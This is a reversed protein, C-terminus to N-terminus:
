LYLHFTIGVELEEEVLDFLTLCQHVREVCLKEESGGIMCQSTLKLLADFIPRVERGILKHEEDSLRVTGGGGDSVEDTSEDGGVLNRVRQQLNRTLLRAAAEIAHFIAQHTWENAASDAPLLHLATFIHQARQLIGAASHDFSHAPLFKLEYLSLELRLRM